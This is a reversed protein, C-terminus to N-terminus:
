NIQIQMILTRVDVLCIREHKLLIVTIFSDKPRQVSHIIVGTLFLMKTQPLFIFQSYRHKKLPMGEQLSRVISNWLRTARWPGEIVQDTM